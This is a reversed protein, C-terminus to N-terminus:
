DTKRWWIPSTWAVQADSQLIRLYYPHFASDQPPEPDTWVLELSESGERDEQRHVLTRGDRLVDVRITRPHSALGVGASVILARIKPSASEVEQGAPAESLSFDVYPRHGTTAYTRRSKLGEFIRERLSGIRPDALVCGLGSRPYLQNDMTRLAAGQDPWYLHSDSGGIFGFRHGLVLADQASALDAAKRHKASDHHMPFDTEELAVDDLARESSGHDSYIELLCEVPDELLSSWDYPGPSEQGGVRRCTHHPITIKEGGERVKALFTKVDFAEVPGPNEVGEYPLETLALDPWASKFVVHRHGWELSWEYGPFAIFTREEPDHSRQFERAIAKANEFGTFRKPSHQVVCGFDERRMWMQTWLLPDPLASHDGHASHRQLDGCYVRFAPDDKPLVRCRNGVAHIAPSKSDDENPLSARFAFFGAAGFTAAFRKMGRDEPKLEIREPFRATSDECSLQVDGQFAECPLIRTRAGEGAMQVAIVSVAVPEGITASMPANVLFSNAQSGTFLLVDGAQEFEFQGAGEKDLFVVVQPSGPHWSILLGRSGRSTDGYTITIATGKPLFRDTRVKLLGESEDVRHVISRSLTAKPHSCTATAYNPGSPRDAQPQSFPFRSLTNQPGLLYGGNRTFLESTEQSFYGFGVQIGGDRKVGEDGVEYTVVFTVAGAKPELEYRPWPGLPM